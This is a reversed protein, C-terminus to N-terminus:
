LTEIAAIRWGQPLKVATVDLTATSSRAPKGPRIEQQDLFVLLTAREPTLSRVGISRVSTSRVLKGREARKAASAFERRFEREAAGTLALDVARETRALNAHDYSFVAKLDASVRDAVADTAAVDVLARNPPERLDAAQVAFVVACATLVVFAAALVALLTPRKM